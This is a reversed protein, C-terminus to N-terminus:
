SKKYLLTGINYANYIEELLYISTKIKTHIITIHLVLGQFKKENIIITTIAVITGGVHVLDGEKIYFGVCYARLL